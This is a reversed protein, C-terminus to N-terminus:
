ESTHEESRVVNGTVSLEGGRGVPLLREGVVAHVARGALPLNGLGAEFVRQHDLGVRPIGGLEGRAGSQFSVNGSWQMCPVGPWRFIGSVPRSFGSTISGSGRSGASSAARARACRPSM